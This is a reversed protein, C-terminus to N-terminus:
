KSNQLNLDLSHTLPQSDIMVRLNAGTRREVQSSHTFEALNTYDKLEDMHKHLKFSSTCFTRVGKLSPRKNSLISPVFSM